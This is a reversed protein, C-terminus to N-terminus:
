VNLIIKVGTLWNTLWEFPSTKPKHLLELLQAATLRQKPNHTLLKRIIRRSTRCLNPILLDPAMYEGREIKVRIETETKGDFPRYGTLMEYLLVGLAWCDSEKGVQNHFQEPAMSYTTGIVYGERTLRPTYAAKAIGFDLLKATNEASVKINCSKLDRHIIDKQHLHAVASTIQELIRLAFSEPLRRHRSILKELTPGEVYEMVICPLRGELVYEYLAAIHPHQVSAQIYAENQFRAAQEARSLIKVAAPQHTTVHEAKYVEGMGGSGLWKTLAYRGITRHSLGGKM